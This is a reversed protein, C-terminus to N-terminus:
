NFDLITQKAKQFKIFIDYRVLFDVLLRALNALSQQREFFQLNALFFVWLTMSM